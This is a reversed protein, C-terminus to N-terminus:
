KSSSGGFLGGLGKIFGEGAGLACTLGLSQASQAGKSSTKAAGGQGQGQVSTLCGQLADGGLTLASQAASSATSSTNTTTTAAAKGGVVTALSIMDINTMDASLAASIGGLKEDFHALVASGGHRIWKRRRSRRTPRTATLQSHCIRGATQVKTHALFSCSMAFGISM